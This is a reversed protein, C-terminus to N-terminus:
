EILVYNITINNSKEIVPDGNNNYILDNRSNLMHESLVIENGKVRMYKSYPESSYITTDVYDPLKLIIQAKHLVMGVPKRNSTQYESLRKM